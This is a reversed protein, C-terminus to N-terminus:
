PKPNINAPEGVVGTEGGLRNGSITRIKAHVAWCPGWVQTRIM